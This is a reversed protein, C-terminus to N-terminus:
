WGGSAGGGGFSGGGGSFGGGSSFGGGGYGGGYYGGGGRGGGSVNNFLHFLTAIIAVIIAFFLGSIILGAIFSGAFVLGTSAKVGMGIRLLSGVFLAIFVFMMATPIMDLNSEKGKPQRRQQYQSADISGGLIGLIANVGAQIGGPFDNRKFRPIIDFDIIQKSLADTLTAELGYGVEIRVKRQKPAVILLVGNNKGAQGIKWYRGLQYGYDAIDLGQLTNVTVVVVQNTTKDEHAKLQQTLRQEVVPSLLNANDVVRGTLQPFNIAQATSAFLVLLAGFFVYLSGKQLSLRQAALCIM